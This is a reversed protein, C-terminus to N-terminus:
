SHNVFTRIGEQTKRHKNQTVTQTTEEIQRNGNYSKRRRKDIESPEIEKNQKLIEICKALSEQWPTIKIGLKKIKDCNLPSYKPREATLTEGRSAAYEYSTQPIVKAKGGSLKVIEKAFEFWSCEGGGAFHYLGFPQGNDTTPLGNSSDSFQNGIVSLEKMAMALDYTYTPCGIQDSVVKLKDKELGLKGITKVFNKGYPSYLWATRLIFYKGGVKEVAIESDLKTQGYHSLPNPEDTEVYPTTKKGDFVFDTSIHFFLANFKKAAAALNRAGDVNIKRALEREEEAKDVATYGAANIIVDPKKVDVFNEVASADTIDLEDKDTLTM